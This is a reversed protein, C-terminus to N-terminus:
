LGSRVLLAYYSNGKDYAVTYGGNFYVYWAYGSYGVYNAGTWYPYSQQTNPFYTGDVASLGSDYPQSYDVISKLEQVNPMHWDHHNCLGAANVAAVFSQTDCNIGGTCTGRSPTGSYGGNSAANTSYWTYSNGTYRLDTSISTKVEWLLRTNNDYTCAWSGATSGLSATAPLVSGSNAIKTFDFGKTGAGAKYLVGAANAADRGMRCDQRPDTPPETGSPNGLDDYCTDVGTDNLASQSLAAPIASMGGLLALAHAVWHRALVRTCASGCDYKRM